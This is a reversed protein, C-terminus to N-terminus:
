FPGRWVASRTSNNVNFYIRGATTDTWSVGPKVGITKDDNPGPPRPAVFGGAVIQFGSAGAQIIDGRRLLADFLNAVQETFRRLRDQGIATQIDPVRCILPNKGIVFGPHPPGPSPPTPASGQGGGGQAQSQVWLQFWPTGPIPLGQHVEPTPSVTGVPSSSGTPQQFDFANPWPARRLLTGLFIQEAAV